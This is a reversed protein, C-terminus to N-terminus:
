SSGPWFWGWEESPSQTSELTNQVASCLSCKTQLGLSGRQHWLACRLPVLTPAAKAGRVGHVDPSLCSGTPSCAAQFYGGCYSTFFGEQAGEEIRTLPTRLYRLVMEM